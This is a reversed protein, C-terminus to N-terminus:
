LINWILDLHPHDCSGGAETSPKLRLVDMGVSFEVSCQTWFATSVRLGEGQSQCRCLRCCICGLSCFVQCCQGPDLAAPSGARPLGASSPRLDLWGMAPLGQAHDRDRVPDMCVAPRHVRSCERAHCCIGACCTVPTSKVRTLMQCTSGLLVIHTCLVAQWARCSPSVPQM